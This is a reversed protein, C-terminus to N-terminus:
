PSCPGSSSWHAPGSALAVVAAWFRICTDYSRETFRVFEFFCFRFIVDTNQISKTYTFLVHVLIAVIESNNGLGRPPRGGPGPAAWWSAAAATPGPAALRPAQLPRRCRRPGDGSSGGHPGPPPPFIPAPVCAPPPVGLFVLFLGLM